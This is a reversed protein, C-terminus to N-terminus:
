RGDDDEDRDREEKVKWGGPVRVRPAIETWRGDAFEFLQETVGRADLDAWAPEPPWPAALRQDLEREALAVIRVLEQWLRMDPIVMEETIFKFQRILEAFEGASPVAGAAAYELSSAVWGCRDLCSDPALGRALQAQEHSARRTETSIVTGAKTAMRELAEELQRHTRMCQDIKPLMEKIIEGAVHVARTKGPEGLCEAMTMLPLVANGLRVLGERVQGARFQAQAERLRFAAIKAAGLVSSRPGAAVVAHGVAAVDRRLYELRALTEAAAADSNNTAGNASM